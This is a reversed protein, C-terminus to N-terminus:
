AGTLGALWALFIAVPVSVVALILLGLTLVRDKSTTERSRLRWTAITAALALALICFIALYLLPGLLAARLGEIVLVVVAILAAVSETVGVVALLQTRTSDAAFRNGIWGAGISALIAAVGLALPFIVFESAILGFPLVFFIGIAGGILASLATGVWFGIGNITTSNSM